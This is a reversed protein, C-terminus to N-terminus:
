VTCQGQYVPYLACQPGSQAGRYVFLAGERVRYPNSWDPNPVIHTRSADHTFWPLHGGFAPYASEFAELAALKRDLLSLVHARVASPAASGADTAFFREALPSEGTLAQAMLMLMASEKSPASFDHMALPSGTAYELVSGDLTMATPAIYSVNPRFFAAEAGFIDSLLAAALSPQRVIGAVSYNHAFGCPPTLPPQAHCQPLLALLLLTLIIRRM